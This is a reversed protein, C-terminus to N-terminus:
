QLNKDGFDSDLSWGAQQFYTQKSVLEITSKM